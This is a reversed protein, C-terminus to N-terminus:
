SETRERLLSVMEKATIRGAPIVMSSQLIRTAPRRPSHLAPQMRGNVWLKLWSAKLKAAGPSRRVGNATLMSTTDLGYGM